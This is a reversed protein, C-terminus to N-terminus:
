VTNNERILKTTSTERHAMYGVQAQQLSSSCGKARPGWCLELTQDTLSMPLSSTLDKFGTVWDYDNHTADM